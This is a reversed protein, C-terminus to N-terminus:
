ASAGVLRPGVEPTPYPRPKRRHAGSSRVRRRLRLDDTTLDGSLLAAERQAPSATYVFLRVASERPPCGHRGWREGCWECRLRGLGLWTRYPQHLQLDIKVGAPVADRALSLLAM